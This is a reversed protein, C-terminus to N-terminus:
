YDLLCQTLLSRRLTLGTLLQDNNKLVEKIEVEADIFGSGLYDKIGEVITEKFLDFNLNAM